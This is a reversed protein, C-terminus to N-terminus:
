DRFPWRSGVTWVRIGQLNDIEGAASATKAEQASPLSGITIGLQVRCVMSVPSVLTPDRFAAM